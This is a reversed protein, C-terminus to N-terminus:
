NWRTYNMASATSFVDVSKDVTNRQWQRAVGARAAFATLCHVVTHETPVAAYVSTTRIWVCVCVCWVCVCLGCVCVCWVVCVCVCVCVSRGQVEEADTPV